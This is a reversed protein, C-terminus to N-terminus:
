SISRFKTFFLFYEDFSGDFIFEHDILIYNENDQARIFDYISENTNVNDVYIDGSEIHIKIKNKKMLKACIKSQLFDFFANHESSKSIENLKKTLKINLRGSFFAENTKNDVVGINILDEM